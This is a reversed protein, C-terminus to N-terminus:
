IWFIAGFIGRYQGSTQKLNSKSYLLLVTKVFYFTQLSLTCKAFGVTEIIFYSSLMFIDYFKSLGVWIM